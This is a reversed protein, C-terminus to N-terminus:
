VPGCVPIECGRTRKPSCDTWEADADAVSFLHEVERGPVALIGRSRLLVRSGSEELVHRLLGTEHNRFRRLGDGTRVSIVGSSIDLVVGEVPQRADDCCALRAQIPHVSHGACYRHCRRPVPAAAVAACTPDAASPVAFALRLEGQHNQSM